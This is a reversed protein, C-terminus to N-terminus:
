QNSLRFFNISPRCFLRFGNETGLGSSVYLLSKNVKYYDQDYKLAGKRKILPIKSFPIRVYGNHSHGALFLDVSYEKLVDDVTDPEHLITITYINQIHNQVHYYEFAKHIDIQKETSSLGIILIPDSNNSYVLEYDNKLVTFNSQNFITAIEDSDEDGLIAYKGLSSSLNQLHKILIEKEESTVSYNKSILDGTFVIIDPKRDNILAQITKLNDEFMTSGFHLDSFQIIKTGNFSSPIKENIVRYERVSIKVTSIYTTYSYFAVLFFIIFVLFKIVYKIVTKKKEKKEEEEIEQQIEENLEERTM